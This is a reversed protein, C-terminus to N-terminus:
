VPGGGVGILLRDELGSPTNGLLEDCYDYTPITQTSSAVVARQVGLTASAFKRADAIRM